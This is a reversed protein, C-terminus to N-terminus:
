RLGGHFYDTWFGLNNEKSKNNTHYCILSSPCALSFGNNIRNVARRVEFSESIRFLSDESLIKVNGLIVNSERRKQKKMEKKNKMAM